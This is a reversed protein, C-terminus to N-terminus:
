PVEAPWYFAGWRLQPWLGAGELASYSFVSVGEAGALRAREIHRALGPGDLDPAYIGIYASSTLSSSHEDALYAFDLREGYAPKITWYVMPALADVLGQLDWLRADQFVTGYGTTVGDWGLTNRYIGWVAASLAAGPSVARLSDRTEAVSATVFRRRMESYDLDPEMARAEEFAALSPADHSWSADPYRIFDLHVGDVAYSRAIDAAVAALRARVGPHGPTMWRTGQHYPMDVGNEDVMVWDPHELFAHRPTSEPPPESGAWGTFANIWAHLQLGRQHAEAVALALPDWGPGEGLTGTLRASWPEIASQYFADARGRVQLYVLNFGGAAARQLIRQIDDATEFEFRSVWLARAEPLSAGSPLPQVTFRASDAGAGNRVQIWYEGDVAGRLSIRFQIEDRDRGAVDLLLAAPSTLVADLLNAGRLTVFVPSDLPSATSPSLSSIVPPEESPSTPGGDGCAM